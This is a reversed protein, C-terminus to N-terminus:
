GIFVWQLISRSGRSLGWLITKSQVPGRSLSDLSGTGSGSVSEYKYNLKLSMDSLKYTVTDVLSVFYPKFSANREDGWSTDLLPYIEGHNCLVTLVVLSWTWLRVFAFGDINLWQKHSIKSYIKGKPKTKRNEWAQLCDNKQLITKRLRDTSSISPKRNKKKCFKARRM